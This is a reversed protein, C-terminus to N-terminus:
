INSITIPISSKRIWNTFYQFVRNGEQNVPLRLGRGIEQRKKMTSKTENITCIQFVNPNDWGERLASHSFIFKLPNNLSLLKEKQKMILSYTDEDDKTNGTTNKFVGKKDMAFYGNHVKDVPLIDLGLSRYEQAVKSYIEEFWKAYRGLQYGDDTYVRYNEVKDLFFLSLVKIGMGQVQMEKEFHIKITERIQKKVIDDRNGGQEEGLRLRIGNAFKVFEMGPRANIEDIVFGNRYVDRGKSKNYLDDGKKCQM